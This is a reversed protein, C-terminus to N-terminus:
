VTLVKFKEASNSLTLDTNVTSDKATERKGPKHPDCLFQIQHLM